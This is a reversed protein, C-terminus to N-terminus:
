QSDGNEGALADDIFQKYVGGQRRFQEALKGKEDSPARMYACVSRVAATMEESSDRGYEAEIKKNSRERWQSDLSIAGKWGAHVSYIHLPTNSGM